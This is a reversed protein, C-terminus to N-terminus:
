AFVFASLPCSLIKKELAFDRSYMILLREKQAYNTHM